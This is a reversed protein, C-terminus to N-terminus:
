QSIEGWLDRWDRNSDHILRVKRARSWHKIAKERTIASTVEEHAEFWVLTTLGYRKTFGDFAGTRHQAVRRVLDSTVGCYLVGNPHNSMLYVFSSKM